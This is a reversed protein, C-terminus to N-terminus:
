QSNLLMQVALKIHILKNTHVLAGTPFSSEVIGSLDTAMIEESINGNINKDNSRITIETSQPIKIIRAGLIIEKNEGTRYTSQARHDVKSAGKILLIIKRYNTKEAYTHIKHAQPTAM